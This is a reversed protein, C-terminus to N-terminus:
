IVIDIAKYVLSTAGAGIVDYKNGWEYSKFNFKTFDEFMKEIRIQKYKQGLYNTQVARFSYRFISYIFFYKEKSNISFIFKLFPTNM